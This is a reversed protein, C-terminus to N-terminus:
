ALLTHDLQDDVLNSHRGYYSREEAALEEFLAVVAKMPLAKMADRMYRRTDTELWGFRELEDKLNSLRFALAAKERITLKTTM